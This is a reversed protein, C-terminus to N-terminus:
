RVQSKPVTFTNCASIAATRQGAALWNLRNEGTGHEESAGEIGSLMDDGLGHVLESIAQFNEKTIGSPEAVSGLFQGAFCDAQMEVRRSIVQKETESETHNELAYSSVLIGSRAQVAHGFEHALITEMPYSEAILDESMVTFLKDSLYIRQDASCYSANVEDIKGCGTTIPKSYVTVPPRPMEYGAAELPVAWVETLCGSVDQLHNELERAAVESPDVSSIACGARAAVSESYLANELVWEEAEDYTNPRPLDSPDYGPVPAPSATGGPVSITPVPMNPFDVGGQAGGFIYAALSQVFAWGGFLMVAVFVL